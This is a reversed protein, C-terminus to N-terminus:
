DVGLVRETMIMSDEIRHHAEAGFGLDSDNVVHIKFTLAFSTKTKSFAGNLGLSYGKGFLNAETISAALYVSDYTSYGIGGSIKGTAKDKVRVVLDM